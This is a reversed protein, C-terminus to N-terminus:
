KKVFDIFDEDNLVNKNTFKDIIILDVIQNIIFMNKVIKLTEGTRINLLIGDRTGYKNKLESKEWLWYYMILQLKHELNLSNVCKFEYINDDDFADIRASIQIEGYIDHM